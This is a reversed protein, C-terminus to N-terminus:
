KRKESAVKVNNKVRSKVLAAGWRPVRGHSKICTLRSSPRAKGGSYILFVVVIVVVYCRFGGLSLFLAAGM